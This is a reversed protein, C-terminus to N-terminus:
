DCQTNKQRRYRFYNNIQARTLGTAKILDLKETKSPNPNMKFHQDLEPYKESLRPSLSESTIGMKIRRNYFYKNIQTRTLGTAEILNLKETESPNPNLKFQQDLVPFKMSLPQGHHQDPNTSTLDKNNREGAFWNDVTYKSLGTIESLNRKEEQTPYPNINFQKELQPYTERLGKFKENLVPGNLGSLKQQHRFWNYIKVRTLGTDKILRSMDSQNPHPNKEFQEALQPYKSAMYFKQVPNENKKLRYRFWNQIQKETLGTSSVLDNLEIQTIYPNTEFQTVLEPFKKAYDSDKSSAVKNTSVRKRRFWMQVQRLSLGTKLALDKQHERSYPDIEFQKELEPYENAFINQRVISEGAKRRCSRQYTFWNKLTNPSLGTSKSLELLHEKTPFPNREFLDSIEPHKEAISREAKVDNNRYREAIFWSKIQKHTLGTMKSLVAVDEKNVFPSKKYQELLEPFQDTMKQRGVGSNFYYSSGSDFTQRKILIIWKKCYDTMDQGSFITPRQFFRWNMTKGHQVDDPICNLSNECSLDSWHKIHQQIFQIKIEEPLTKGFSDEMIEDFNTAMITQVNFVNFDGNSIVDDVLNEFNFKKFIAKTGDARFQWFNIDFIPTVQVHTRNLKAVSKKINELEPYLDEFAKYVVVFYRFNARFATM